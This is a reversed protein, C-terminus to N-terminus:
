ARSRPTSRRSRTAATVLEDLKLRGQRYLDVLMPVDIAIRASGMKSGLVRQGADALGVPEFAAMVGSAPMGVIVTTGGRALLAFSQEVALKAGVTVFVFDAGRGQTLQRVAAPLDDSAPNLTHTAGFRRAAALKGDSLDIAIM